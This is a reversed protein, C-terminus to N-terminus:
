GCGTPGDRPLPLCAPSRPSTPAQASRGAPTLAPAWTQVPVAIIADRVPETVDFGVSYHWTYGRRAAQTQDVRATGQDVRGRRVRFIIKRRYAAPLQAVAESLVAVHDAATNSGSSGPRLLVTLIEGTNACSVIIPHLGFVHKKYTGTAGEKESHSEVLSADVDIVTWGTWTQEAVRLWPFGVDGLDNVREPM